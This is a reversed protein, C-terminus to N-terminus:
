EIIRELIGHNNEHSPPQWNAPKFLDPLGLPNPRDLKVGSIKNMNCELVEDWAKQSDVNLLDLTGSAVVILDILSDVIEEPNKTELADLGEDLEEKLFAFRFKLFEILKSKDFNEVVKGHGYHDHMNRIDKFIDTSM